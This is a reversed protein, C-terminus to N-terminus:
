LERRLARLAAWWSEIRIIPEVALNAGRRVQQEIKSFLNQVRLAFPPIIRLIRMFAYISGAFIALFLLSVFMVPILLFILSIDAWRSAEAPGALGALVAFFVVLVLGAFIPLMIQWLKQRAHSRQAVPNRDLFQPSKMSEMEYIITAHNKGAM